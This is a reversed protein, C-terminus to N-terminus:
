LVFVGSKCMFGWIGNIWIVGGICVMFERVLGGICIIDGDVIYWWGGM